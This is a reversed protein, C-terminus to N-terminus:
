VESHMKKERAILKSGPVLIVYIRSFSYYLVYMYVHSINVLLCKHSYDYAWATCPLCVCVVIVVRCTPLVWFEFQTYEDYMRIWFYFKPCRRHGFLVLHTHTHTHPNAPCVFLTRENVNSRTKTKTKATSPSESASTVRTSFADHQSPRM